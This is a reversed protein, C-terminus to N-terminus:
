QDDPDSAAADASRLQAWAAPRKQLFAAIGEAAEASRACDAFRRAADDLVASMPQRGVGLVIAKTAANAGPACARVARLTESLGDALATASDYAAHVVGLREAERGGFSRGTLALRRAQTLGIRTVVYPAIQAPPLGRTTEPLGFRAAEHALAIDSVCVLGFGGGLVAGECVTILAQPLAEAQQLLDGFRRNVAAIPDDSSASPAGGAMLGKLDAGACFHGGAGRLVVARLDSRGQCEAFVAALQTLTEARLANRAEPRNLTITRVGHDDAVQLDSYATM